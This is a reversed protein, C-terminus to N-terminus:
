IQHVDIKLVGRDALWSWHRDGTMIPYGLRSAVALVLSDGLSLTHSKGNSRQVNGRSQVLLEGAAQLDQATPPEIRLGAAALALTLQEATSVNGRVQAMHIVETLVPGPLVLDVLDSDILRDIVQWRQEQLVWRLEASTDLSL